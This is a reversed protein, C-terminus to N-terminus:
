AVGMRKQMRWIRTYVKRAQDMLRYIDLDGAGSQVLTRSIVTYVEDPTPDGYPDPKLILRPKV